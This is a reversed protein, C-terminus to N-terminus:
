VGGRDAAVARFFRVVGMRRVIAAGLGPAATNLALLPRIPSPSVIVEGRDNRIARVVAQAVRAPPVTGALRPAKRGYGAFMGADAVFGPCIVSASVGTGELEARLAGTWEILGAKTASYTAIYAMGRKGALSAITVIHGRRRELMGPLAQRTLLLSGVLNTNIIRAIEEPAQKAFSYVQEIGANNVLIDVPGLQAEAQQLLSRRAADDSVDAPIAVARAGLAALEAAVAELELASRAALALNVGEEALARAIYPGIGRSAGTLVANKNRLEKM